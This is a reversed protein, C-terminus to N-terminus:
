LSYRNNNFVQWEKQSLIELQSEQEARRFDGITVYMHDYRRGDSGDGDLRMHSLGARGQHLYQPRARYHGRPVVIADGGNKYKGFVIGLIRVTFELPMDPSRVPEPDSGDSYALEGTQFNVRYFGIKTKTPVPWLPNWVPSNLAECLRKFMTEHSVDHGQPDFNLEGEMLLIEPGEGLTPATRLEMEIEGSDPKIWFDIDPTITRVEGNSSMRRYQFFRKAEDLVYTDGPELIITLARGSSFTMWPYTAQVRRTVERAALAGPRPTFKSM